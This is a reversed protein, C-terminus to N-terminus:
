SFYNYYTQEKQANGMQRIRGQSARNFRRLAIFSTLRKLM